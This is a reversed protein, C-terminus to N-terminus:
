SASRGRAAPRGRGGRAGRGAAVIPAVKRVIAQACLRATQKTRAM